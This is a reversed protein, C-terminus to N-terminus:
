LLFGKYVLLLKSKSYILSFGTPRVEWALVHLAIICVLTLELGQNSNNRLNINAFPQM